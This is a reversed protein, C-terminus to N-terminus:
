SEQINFITEKRLKKVAELDPRFLKRALIYDERLGIDM